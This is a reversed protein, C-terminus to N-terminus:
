GYRLRDIERLNKTKKKWVKYHLECLYVRKGEKLKLDSASFKNRSLSRVAESNCDTVSCKVGKQIRGM